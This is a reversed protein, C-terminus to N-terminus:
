RSAQSDRIVGLKYSKFKREVKKVYGYGKTSLAERALDKIKIRDRPDDKDFRYLHLYTLYDDFLEVPLHDVALLDTAREGQSGALHSFEHSITEHSPHRELSIRLRYRDARGAADSCFGVKIERDQLEPFYLYVREIREKVDEEFSRAKGVFKLVMRVTDIEQGYAPTVLYNGCPFSGM